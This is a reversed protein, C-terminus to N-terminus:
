SKWYDIDEDDAGVFAGQRRVASDVRPEPPLDSRISVREKSEMGMGPPLHRPHVEVPKKGLLARSRKTDHYAYEFRKLCKRYVPSLMLGAFVSGVVWIWLCDKALGTVLERERAKIEAYEPNDAKIEGDAIMRLEHAIPRVEAPKRYSFYSMGLIFGPLVIFMLIFKYPNLFELKLIFFYVLAGIWGGWLALTFQVEVPKGQGFGAFMLLPIAIAIIEGYSPAFMYLVEFVDEIVTRKHPSNYNIFM